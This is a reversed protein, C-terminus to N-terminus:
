IALFSVSLGARHLANLLAVETPQGKDRTANNCIAGAYLLAQAELEKEGAVVDLTNEYVLGRGVTFEVLRHPDTPLLLSQVTM